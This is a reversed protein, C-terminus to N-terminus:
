KCEVINLFVINRDDGFDRKLVQREAKRLSSENELIDFKFTYIGNEPIDSNNEPLYSIFYKKMYNKNINNELLLSNM